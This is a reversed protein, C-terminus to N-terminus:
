TPPPPSPSPFLCAIIAICTYTGCAELSLNMYTRVLCFVHHPTGLAGKRRFVCHAFQRAQGSLFGWHCFMQVSHNGNNKKKTLFSLFILSVDTANQPTRVLDSCRTPCTQPLLSESSPPVNHSSELGRYKTVKVVIVFFFVCLLTTNNLSAM